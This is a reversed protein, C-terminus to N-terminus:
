PERVRQEVLQGSPPTAAVAGLRVVASDGGAAQAERLAEEAAAVIGAADGGAGPALVGAGVSLTVHRGIRSRPHHLALGRVRALMTGAHRGAQAADVDPALAALTDGEWRAVADAARRFCHSFTRAVQRLCADGGLRGFTENYATFADLDALFLTVARGHRRAAGVERELAEQLWARSRLGTLLDEPMARFRGTAARADAEAGAARPAMEHHLGLWHVLAGGAEHLPVLQLDQWFSSGDGRRCLFAVRGERGASVCERLRHLGPEDRHIETLRRGVLDAPVVGMLRACAPNAYVIPLTADFGDMLTAAVPLADLAARLLAPVLEASM